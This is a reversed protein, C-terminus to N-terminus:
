AERAKRPALDPPHGPAAEGRSTAIVVGSRFDHVFHELGTEQDLEKMRAIAGPLDNEFSVWVPAGDALKKFLGYREM